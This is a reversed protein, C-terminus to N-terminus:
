SLCLQTGLSPWAWPREEAPCLHLYGQTLASFIVSGDEGKQEGNFKGTFMDYTDSCANVSSAAELHPLKSPIIWLKVSATEASSNFSQVRVSVHKYESSLRGEQNKITM